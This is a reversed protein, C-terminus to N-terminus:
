KFRAQQILMDVLESVGMSDCEEIDADFSGDEVLNLVKQDCAGLRILERLERTVEQKMNMM